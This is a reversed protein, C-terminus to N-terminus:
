MRFCLYYVIGINKYKCWFVILTTYNFAIIDVIRRKASPKSFHINKKFKKRAHPISIITLFINIRVRIRM